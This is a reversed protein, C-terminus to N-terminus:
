RSLTSQALASRPLSIKIAACMKPTFMNPTQLMAAYFTDKLNTLSAARLQAQLAASLDDHLVAVPYRHEATILVKYPENEATDAGIKALLYDNKLM